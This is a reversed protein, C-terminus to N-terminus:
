LDAIFQMINMYCKGKLFKAMFMPNKIEKVPIKYKTKLTDEGKQQQLPQSSKEM